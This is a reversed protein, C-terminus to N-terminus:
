SLCLNDLEQLAQEFDYEDVAKSMRKLASAHVSIGSLEHLEDLVESAATADDELLLRLKGLLLNFQETDLSETEVAGRGEGDVSKLVSLEAIVPSLTADVANLLQDIEKASRGEKCAAELENASEQVAIASINGAVGKLTHACRTAEEADDSAQAERFQEVFNSETDRFKILLKRYLKHKGQCIALGAATDVGELKPIEEQAASVDTAEAAESFPKSPTIWKAMTNFMVNVNIPKAIHENMGADMVKERDGAMANATMALIPLDKFRDQERLKRTATYGDMVPMQCDMLVGDFGERGLIDLAELGNNAVEVLVGNGTLLEMALEQNIENDEVLLVKAGRLHLMAESVEEQIAAHRDSTPQQGMAVMIADLLSSPTVPKTLFGALNIGEAAEDAEDRGYATVMIVTPVHTLKSDNQIAQTTEIGDMNPMKWDMLVLDYAESDDEQELLSIAAEGSGAQDVRLGFSALISSLIERATANDDVVLVRLAGLESAISRRSTIAGHQLEFRATFYFTSGIGEESEVWIEGNMLQTLKKSISLGLGTGGYKRTTSTDAQSFSEFLKDQDNTSMGIGTDRISFQLLAYDDSLELAKVGVVIEDSAETFKVANNGLNTLVQGLRLSDGILATPLGSPLDFMLEVGKEEAKLGVLNALNDMVDELRFPAQEMDLKGAEIKSFDLIDNIIGLLSEASRHVKSVYNRQKIDLETQLALYSMGIIANMPTRIEHSMNALFDSKAKVADEARLKEEQLHIVRKREIMSERFTIAARYIDGVEDKRHTDAIEVDVNGEALEKITNAMTRIPRSVYNLMFIAVAGGFFLTILAVIATFWIANRISEVAQPGLEDQKKKIDLKIHEIENAVRPGTQDLKNRIIENRSSIAEFVRGFAHRYAAQKVKVEGALKLRHPNELRKILQDLNGELATFETTARTYSAEDNSVLFRTAYVRALLLSRLSMGAWYSADTDKDNFATDMIETLGRGMQPGSLNLVNLVLEERVSQKTVVQKFNIIYDNLALDMREMEDHYDDRTSIEQAETILKLTKRARDNVGEISAKSPDIIFNKAFLRTTLMNAQIRGDANTQRAMSRYTNFTEEAEMLAMLGVTSLGLLLVIIFGLSLIVKSSITSPLKIM